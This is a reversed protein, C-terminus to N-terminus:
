RGKAQRATRTLSGLLAGALLLFILGGVVPEPGIAASRTLVYGAAIALVAGVAVFGDEIVLGVLEKAANLIWRM